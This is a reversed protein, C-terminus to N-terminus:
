AEDIRRRVGAAVILKTKETLTSEIAMITRPPLGRSTGNQQLALLSLGSKTKASNRIVVSAPSATWGFSDRMKGTQVEMPRGPFHQGKWAAYGPSLNAWQGGYVGGRTNIAENAFFEAYTKGIEEMEPGLQYLSKGLKAVKDLLAQSGNIKVTIVV